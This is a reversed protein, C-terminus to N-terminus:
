EEVEMIHLNTATDLKVEGDEKTFVFFDNEFEDTEEIVAENLSLDVNFLEIFYEVIVKHDIHAVRMSSKLCTILFLDHEGNAKNPNFKAMIIFKAKTFVFAYTGPEFDNEKIKKCIQPIRRKTFKSLGIGARDKLQESFHKNDKYSVVFGKYKTLIINREVLFQGFKIM